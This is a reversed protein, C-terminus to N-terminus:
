AAKQRYLALTIVPWTCFQGRLPRPNYGRTVRLPLALNLPRHGNPPMFTPRVAEGDREFSM